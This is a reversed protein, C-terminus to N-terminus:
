DMSGMRSFPYYIMAPSGIILEENLLGWIRSDESRDRNDGMMFYYNDNFRYKVEKGKLMLYVAKKPLVPNAPNNYITDFTGGNIHIIKDNNVKLIIEGMVIYKKQPDFKDPLDFPRAYQKGDTGPETEIPIDSNNKKKFGDYKLTIVDGQKPVYFTGKIAQGHDIFQITYKKNHGQEIYKEVYSNGMNTKYNLRKIFKRTYRKGNVSLLRSKKGNDSKVTYIKIVDGPIGVARKVYNKPNNGTNDLSFIGFTILDIFQMFAGVSKYTPAQFVVVDGKEPKSFGPLKWGLVPLKIGYYFKNVIIHDGPLITPEMSRTPVKYAEFLFIKIFLAIGIAAFITKLTGKASSEKKTRGTKYYEHSLM